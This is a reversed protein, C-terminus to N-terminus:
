MSLRQLSRATERKLEEDASHFARSVFIVVRGERFRCFILSQECDIIESKDSDIYTILFCYQKNYGVLQQM